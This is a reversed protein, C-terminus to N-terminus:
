KKNLQPSQKFCQDIYQNLENISHNSIGRVLGLWCNYIKNTNPNFKPNAAIEMVLTESTYSSYYVYYNSPYYYPYYYGWGWYYDWPNYSYYDYWWGYSSATVYKNEVQSINVVLDPENDSALAEEDFLVYGKELMNKKVQAIILQAKSDSLKTQVVKGSSSVTIKTITDVIAFTNFMEFSINENVQTFAVLQDEAKSIDDPYYYCSSGLLMTLLMSLFTFKKM